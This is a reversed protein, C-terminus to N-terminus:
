QARKSVLKIRIKSSKSGSIVTQSLCLDGYRDADKENDDSDDSDDSGDDCADNKDNNNKKEEMIIRHHLIKKVHSALAPNKKVLYQMKRWDENQCLHCHDCHSLRKQYERTPKSPTGPSIGLDALHAVSKGSNGQYTYSYRPRWIGSVFTM